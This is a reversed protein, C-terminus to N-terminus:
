ALGREPCVSKRPPHCSLDSISPSPKNWRRMARAAKRRQPRAQWSGCPWNPSIENAALNQYLRALAPHSFFDPAPLYYTRTYSYLMRRIEEIGQSLEFLKGAPRSASPRPPAATGGFGFRVEYLGRHREEIPTEKSELLIADGGLELKAQRIASEVSDSHYARINM